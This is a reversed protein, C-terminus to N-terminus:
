RLEQMAPMGNESVKPKFVGFASEQGPPLQGGGAMATQLVSHSLWAVVGIQEEDFPL